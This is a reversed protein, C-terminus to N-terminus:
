EKGLIQSCFLKQINQYFFFQLEIMQYKSFDINIKSLGDLKIWAILRIIFTLGFLIQLPYKTLRKLM